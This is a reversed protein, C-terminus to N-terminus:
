QLTDRILRVLERKGFYCQRQVIALLHPTVFTDGVLDLTHSFCGVDVITPFVVKLIRMAAGNCSARDHMAALLLNSTISYETSLTNILERAIEEGSMSKALLQLCVLRQQISFSDDVFCVVIAMAEGHRTTGDFVVCVPKGLIEAKIDAQEQKSIFDSMHRRNTLRFVNEELLDRFVDLKALPIAARLFTKLVKVRYVRQEMPLTEGVPQSTSDYAGVREAIDREHAEKSKLKEKSSLHSRLNLIISSM